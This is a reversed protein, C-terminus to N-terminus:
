LHINHSYLATSLTFFSTGSEKCPHGLGLEWIARRGKGAGGSTSGSDLSGLQPGDRGEVGRGKGM